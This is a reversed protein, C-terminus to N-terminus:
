KLISKLKDLLEIDEPVDHVLIMDNGLTFPITVSPGEEKPYFTINFTYNRTNTNYSLVTAYHNYKEDLIMELSIHDNIFEIFMKECKKKIDEESLIM